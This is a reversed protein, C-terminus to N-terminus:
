RLRLGRLVGFLSGLIEDCTSFLAFSNVRLENVDNQGFNVVRLKGLGPSCDCAHKLLFFNHLNKDSEAFVLVVENLQDLTGLQM